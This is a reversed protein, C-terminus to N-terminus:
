QAALGRGPPRWVPATRRREPRRRLHPDVGPQPPPLAQADQGPTEVMLKADCVLRSMIPWDRDCHVACRISFARSVPRAAGTGRRRHTAGEAGHASGSGGAGIGRRRRPRQPFAGGDSSPGRRWRGCRACPAEGTFVWGRARTRWRKETLVEVRHPVAPGLGLVVV